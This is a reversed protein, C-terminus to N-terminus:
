PASRFNALEEVWVRRAYGCDQNFNSTIGVDGLRSAMTVRYTVGGLDAYLTPFPDAQLRGHAPARARELFLRLVEPSAEDEIYDDCHRPERAPQKLKKRKM